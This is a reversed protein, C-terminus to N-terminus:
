KIKVKVKPSTALTNESPSQAGRVRGRRHLRAASKKALSKHSLSWAFYM